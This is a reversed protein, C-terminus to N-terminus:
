KKGITFFIDTDGLFIEKNLLITKKQKLTFRKIFGIKFHLYNLLKYKTKDIKKSSLFILKNKDNILYSLHKSKIKKSGFHDLIVYNSGLNDKNRKLIFFSSLKKFEFKNILYEHKQYSLYRNKFYTFNKLFLSNGGKMFGKLNILEDIHYNKIKKLSTLNSSTKYLYYKKKIIKKSNIGFNAFNKKNPWMVVIRVNKSIKKKVRKLLDSFIGQSRYKKLVMSSHRSFIREQANNNIQISIMGVNAILRSAEFAGYCFSFKNSFYRWKFFELSVKKNFCFYFLKKFEQYDSIKLKRYILNSNKLKSNM